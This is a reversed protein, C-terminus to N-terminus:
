AVKIIVRNDELDINAIVGKIRKVGGFLDTLVVTDGEVEITKTNEMLIKKSEMDYANALCM